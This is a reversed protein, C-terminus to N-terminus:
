LIDEDDPAALLTDDLVSTQLGAFDVSSQDTLGAIEGIGLATSQVEASQGVMVGIVLSAALMAAAAIPGRQRSSAPLRGAINARPTPVPDSRSGEKSAADMIRRMLADPAPAQDHTKRVTGVLSDFARDHKLFLQREHPELTDFKARAVAPWRSIDAGYADRAALLATDFKAQTVM